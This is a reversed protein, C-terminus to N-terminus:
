VNTFCKKNDKVVTTLNLEHQAKAKRIKERCIRAVEQVRGSNDAVEEESSLSEKEGLTESSTGKGDVGTKKGM